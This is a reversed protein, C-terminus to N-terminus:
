ECNSRWIWKQWVSKNANLKEKPKRMAYAAVATQPLHVTYVHTFNFKSPQRSVNDRTSISAIITSENWSQIKVRMQQKRKPTKTTRRGANAHQVFWHRVTHRASQSHKHALLHSMRTHSIHYSQSFSHRRMLPQGLFWGFVCSVYAAIQRRWGIRRVFRTQLRKRQVSKWRRSHVVSTRPSHFPSIDVCILLRYVKTARWRTWFIPIQLTPVALATRLQRRGSLRVLLAGSKKHTTTQAM